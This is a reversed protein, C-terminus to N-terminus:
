HLLASEARPLAVVLLGDAIETEFLLAFTSSLEALHAGTIGMGFVGDGAKIGENVGKGTESHVAGGM